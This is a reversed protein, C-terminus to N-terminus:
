GILVCCQHYVVLQIKSFLVYIIMVMMKITIILLGRDEIGSGRDGIGSGRDGVSSGQKWEELFGGTVHHFIPTMENEPRKYEQTESM